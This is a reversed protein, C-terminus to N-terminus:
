TSLNKINQSIQKLMLLTNHLFLQVINSDKCFKGHLISLEEKFSISNYKSNLISELDATPNTNPALNKNDRNGHRM